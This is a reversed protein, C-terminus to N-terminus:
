GRNIALRQKMTGGIDVNDHCFPGIHNGQNYLLVDRNKFSIDRLLIDM